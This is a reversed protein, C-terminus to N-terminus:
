LNPSVQLVRQITGGDQLIYDPQTYPSVQM